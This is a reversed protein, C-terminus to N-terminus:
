KREERGGHKGRVRKIRKEEENSQLQSDLDIMNKGEASSVHREKVEVPTWLNQQCHMSVVGWTPMRTAHAAVKMAEKQDM